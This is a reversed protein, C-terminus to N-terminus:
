VLKVYAMLLLVLAGLHVWSWCEYRGRLAQPSLASILFLQGQAPKALTYIGSDPFNQIFTSA